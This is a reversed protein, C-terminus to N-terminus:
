YAEGPAALGSLAGSASPEKLCSTLNWAFSLGEAAVSCWIIGAAGLHAAGAFRLINAAGYALLQRRVYLSGQERIFLYRAVLANVAMIVFYSLWAPLLGVVENLETGHFKGRMYVFRVVPVRYAFLGLAIVVVGGAALVMWRKFEDRRQSQNGACLRAQVLQAMPQAFLSYGLMGIRMACNNASLMGTGARSLFYLMLMQNGAYGGNEVSSAALQRLFRRFDEFKWPRVVPAVADPSKQLRLIRIISYLGVIGFGATMSIPLSLNNLAKAAFLGFLALTMFLYPFGTMSMAWLNQGRATCIGSWVGICVIPVLCLSLIALTSWLESGPRASFIRLLLPACALMLVSLFTGVLCGYFLLGPLWEVTGSRRRSDAYAPTFALSFAGFMFTALTLPFQQLGFYADTVVTLGFQSAIFAERAFASCKFLAGTALTLGILIVARTRGNRLQKSKLLSMLDTKHIKM